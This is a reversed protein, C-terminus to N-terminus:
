KWRKVDEIPQWSFEAGVRRAHAKIWVMNRRSPMQMFTVPIHLRMAFEVESRTSRGIYGLPNIVYIEHSEAIKDKHLDDLYNQDRRSLEQDYWHSYVEPKLVIKGNWSLEAARHEFVDKFKTSGCMTVKTRKSHRAAM